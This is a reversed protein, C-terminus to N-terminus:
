HQRPYLQAAFHYRTPHYHAEFLEIIAGDAEHYCRLARLVPTGAPVGLAEAVPAPAAVADMVQRAHAMRLGHSREIHRITPLPGAVDAASVREAIRAPFWFAIHVIPEGDTVHNVGIIRKFEASGAHEAFVAVHPPLPVWQESLVTVRNLMLVDDIFGTLVVSKAIREAANIFTGAGRRRTVLHRAVLEDLAKRITIRSVGYAQCLAAESPLADGPQLGRAAIGRTIDESVQRYLPVLLANPSTPTAPGGLPLGLSATPTWSTM